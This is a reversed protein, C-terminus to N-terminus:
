ETEDKEYALDRKVEEEFEKRDKKINIKGM